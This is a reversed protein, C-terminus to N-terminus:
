RWQDAQMALAKSLGTLLDVPRQGRSLYATRLVLMDSLPVIGFIATYFAYTFILGVDTMQQVVKVWDAAFVSPMYLFDNQSGMCYTSATGLNSAIQARFGADSVEYFQRAETLFRKLVRDKQEETEVDECLALASRWIVDCGFERAAHSLRGVNLLLDDTMFLFGSPPRTSYNATSNTVSETDRRRTAAHVFSRQM